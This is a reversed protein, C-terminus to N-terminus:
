EGKLKNKKWCELCLGDCDILWSPTDKECQKCKIM